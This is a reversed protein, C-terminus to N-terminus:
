DNKRRNRIKCCEKCETKGNFHNFADNLICWCFSDSLTFIKKRGKKESIVIDLNSLQKLQHSIASLTVIPVASHIENVTKSKKTLSILIKLRTEDALSSFFRLIKKNIQEM